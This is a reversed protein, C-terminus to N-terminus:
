EPKPLANGEVDHWHQNNLERLGCVSDSILRLGWIAAYATLLTIIVIDGQTMPALVAMIPAQPVVLLGGIVPSPLLDYIAMQVLVFTAVLISGTGIDSYYDFKTKLM